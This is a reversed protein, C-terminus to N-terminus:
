ANKGHIHHIFRNFIPPEIVLRQDQENVSLLRKLVLLDVAAQAEDNANFDELGAASRLVYQEIESLSLWITKCEAKISTKKALQDALYEGKTMVTNVDLNRLSSVAYFGARLLGAFCGTSWMLFSTVYEPYTKASRKIMGELMRQGDVENYPGIFTTNDTFLEVFQEIELPDIGYSQVLSPLPTRTFTLYSLYKKNADRLGRLTLFFKVPLEKLMVEFEDFMFVIHFDKRIFLDLAREFYRLGMSAYLPNTGDQFLQSLEDLYDMESEDLVDSQYFAMYLRHMMLEYGAWCAHQEKNASDNPLPVLLAPDIIISKFRKAKTEKMYAVQVREDSLHQLLNSKGVSGVGVLSCSDVARWREMVLGVERQRFELPQQRTRTGSM